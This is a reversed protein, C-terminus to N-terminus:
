ADRGEDGDLRVVNAGEHTRDLVHDLVQLLGRTSGEGPDLKDLGWWGQGDSREACRFGFGSSAVDVNSM